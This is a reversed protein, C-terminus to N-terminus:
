SLSCSQVEVRFSEYRLQHTDQSDYPVGQLLLLLLLLRRRLRSRQQLLRQCQLLFHFLL